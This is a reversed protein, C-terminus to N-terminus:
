SRAEVAATSGLLGLDTQEPVRIVEHEPILSQPVDSGRMHV